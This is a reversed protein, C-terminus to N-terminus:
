RDRAALLASMARRGDAAVGRRWYSDSIGADVVDDAATIEYQGRKVRRLAGAAVLEGLYREVSRLSLDLQWAIAGAKVVRVEGGSVREAVFVEGLVASRLRAADAASRSGM